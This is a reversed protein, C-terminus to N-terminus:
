AIKAAPAAVSRYKMELLRFTSPPVLKAITAFDGFKLCSRVESASIPRGECLRREFEVVGVPAGEAPAQALWYKM